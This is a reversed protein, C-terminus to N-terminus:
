VGQVTKLEREDKLRLYDLTYNLLILVLLIFLISALVYTSYDKSVGEEKLNLSIERQSLTLERDDLERQKSTLEATFRNLETSQVSVNMGVAATLYNQTGESLQRTSDAVLGSDFVLVLACVVAAVRLVRHYNSQQM